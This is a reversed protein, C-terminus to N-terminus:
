IAALYQYVIGVVMTHYKGIGGVGLYLEWKSFVNNPKHLLKWQPFIISEWWTNVNVNHTIAHPLDIEM